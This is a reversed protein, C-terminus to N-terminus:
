NQQPINIHQIPVIQACESQDKAAYFKLAVLFIEHKRKLYLEHEMSYSDYFFNFIKNIDDKSHFYLNYANATKHKHINHIGVGVLNELTKKVGEIFKISGSLFSIRWTGGGKKNKNFCISGDGDFNGRLFHNVYEVPVKPFEIKLSKHPTIGLRLLDEVIETSNISLRYLDQHKKYYHIPHESKM